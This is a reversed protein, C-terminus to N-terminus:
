GAPAPAPVGGLQDNCGFVIQGSGHNRRALAARVLHGQGHATALDLWSKLETDLTESSQDVLAQARTTREDAM